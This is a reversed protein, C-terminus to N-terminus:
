HGGREHLKRFGRRLGLQTFFSTTAMDFSTRNKVTQFTRSLIRGMTYGQRMVQANLEYMQEPSMTPHRFVVAEGGYHDWSLDTLIRGQELYERHIRSGPM